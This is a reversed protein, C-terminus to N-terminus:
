SRMGDVLIGDRRRAMDKQVIGWIRSALHIGALHFDGHINRLFRERTTTSKFAERSVLSELKPVHGLYFASYHLPWVIESDRYFYKAAELLGAVHPEELKNENVQRVVRSVLTETAEGRLREFKECKVFIHYMDESEGCGYRCGSNAIKKKQMMSSATPLQGSRAYLQVMASYASSAKTYPYIPHSHSDYLWTAMRYHYALSLTKATQKALFYDVFVRINSEIWGDDDRYFTFDDMLFTPIPAIPIIHTANQAKSAYHDAQANLLSGIGMEDTHSKVHVVSTRSRRALDAIWRYYSRGNMYRLKAEQGVRSRFDEIFRVSNLHDSHLTTSVPSDSAMLLGAIIGMLEGQLISVNRGSIRLALTSPGTLAATVSKPDGIGSAAPIMSGDSAWNLGCHPLNSPPLPQVKAIIKIFTEARSKRVDRTTMLDRDGSTFWKADIELLIGAIRDWNEKAKATWNAGGPAIEKSKFHSVIGSATQWSGIDALRSVGRSTLTKIVRGDPVTKGHAKAINLVHTLSVEGRLIHSNDTVRLALKPEFTTMIKHAIVWAAPIKRYQGTFERLLGKGDLPYVCHNIACTWDALTLRAMIRYAPVHHNLDRWLGETAIGANIRALSPYDLGHLDIPLTLIDTNPNYPFGTIHHIKSAIIKDLSLADGPKIPQISLLARLRSVLNQWIIKRLLTLPARITFKPFKFNEIISRAGEFRWVPDDVKCWLFELEGVKLPVDHWTVTHPHVGDQITISPMSVTDPAPGSPGLLYASTKAWQTLWGYAFQFREMELCFSCLTQLTRAFIYSDDTAEVMTVPLQMSDAPNHAPHKSKIILTDPSNRALDDLYRHGLSTTMTSKLPSLPGGQKTVGNLVIPGTTGYATRIFVKTEKQAARDLKIIELPLGYAIIADYFGQPHLYDFGKMQDRQLAYVTQKHRNAFSKVASLYSMVDRTQVGQQTAVQTEPILSKRAAYPVLLFNLWTM